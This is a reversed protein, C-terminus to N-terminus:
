RDLDVDIALTRREGAGFRWTAVAAVICPRVHTLAGTVRTSTVEGDETVDVELNGDVTGCQALEDHHRAVQRALEVRLIGPRAMQFERHRRLLPGAYLSLEPGVALPDSTMWDASADPELTLTVHADVNAVLPFVHLVLGADTAELLAPDNGHRVVADFVEKGRSAATFHAVDTWENGIQVSMGTVRMGAEIHIPVDVKTPRVETTSVVLTITHAILTTSM